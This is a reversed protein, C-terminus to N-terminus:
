SCFNSQILSLLTYLLVSLFLSSILQDWEVLGLLSISFFRFLRSDMSDTRCHLGNIYVLQVILESLKRPNEYQMFVTDNVQTMNNNPPPPALLCM